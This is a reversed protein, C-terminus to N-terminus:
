DWWFYWYSSNLLTAALAAIDGVGQDVIDSCFVYQERALSLASERDTPPKSVTFEMVDHTISIIEAAYREHWRRAFATIVSADPCENWGGMGVYAPAEWIRPTPLKAIAVRDKPKRSLIDLHAGMTGAPSPEDPWEGAEAMYVEPDVELRGKLWEEVDVTAALRLREEISSGSFKSDEALMSAEDDGGLLIATFGATRGENRLQQLYRPAEAGPCYVVQFGGANEFNSLSM